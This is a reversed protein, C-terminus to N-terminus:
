FFFFFEILRGPSEPCRQYVQWFAAIDKPCSSGRAKFLWNPLEIQLFTLPFWRNYCLLQLQSLFCHFLPCFVPVFLFLDGFCSLFVCKAIGLGRAKIEFLSHPYPFLLAVSLFSGAESVKM